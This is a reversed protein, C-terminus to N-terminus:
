SLTWSAKITTGIGIASEITFIGGSLEIRERMSGLGFGNPHNGLDFGVGDDEVTLEVDREKNRLVIIAQTARSHKAINNLAEQIIRYIAIKLPLPIEDEHIDIKKQVSISSYIKEFERTFWGITAIIGLDDLISPRLNMQIRRVEEISERILPVLHEPSKDVLKGM